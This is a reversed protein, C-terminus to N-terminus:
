LSVFSMHTAKESRPLGSTFGPSREQGGLFIQVPLFLNLLVPAFWHSKPLEGTSLHGPSFHSCTASQNSFYPIRYGTISTFLQVTQTHSPINYRFRHHCFPISVHAYTSILVKTQTALPTALLPAMLNWETNGSSFWHQPTFKSHSFGLNQTALHTHLLGAAPAHLEMQTQILLVRTQTAATPAHLEM